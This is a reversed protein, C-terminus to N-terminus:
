FWILLQYSLIIVSMPSGVLMGVWISPQRKGTPFHQWLGAPLTKSNRLLLSQIQKLRQVFLQSLGWLKLALAQCFHNQDPFNQSLYMMIHTYLFISTSFTLHHFVTFLYVLSSFHHDFGIFRSYSLIIKLNSPSPRLSYIFYIFQFVVFFSYLCNFEGRYFETTSM